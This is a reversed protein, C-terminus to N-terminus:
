RRGRGIFFLVLIAYLELRGVIMLVVLVLKAVGPLPAYTMTPGVLGFGPGINGICAASAGFASVMDLGLFSLVLGGFAFLTLFLMFFTTVSAVVEEPIANSGIRVPLVARPQVLRKLDVILKKVVIMIRAVKVSGGTSGACGGVFMLLFLLTKSFSPWADFNATAFGTTTVIAVVQFVGYRLAELIGQGEGRFILDLALVVTAGGLIGLYYRVERDRLLPAPRGRLLHYHLAFNAGALVMFLVIVMEIAASDFGAISANRTSFGGTAMTAFAQNVAELPGMGLAILAL